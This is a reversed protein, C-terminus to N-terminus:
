VGRIGLKGKHRKAKPEYYQYIYEKMPLGGGQGGTLTVRAGNHSLGTLFYIDEIDLSLIHVGM